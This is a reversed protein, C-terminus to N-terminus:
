GGCTYWFRETLLIPAGKTDWFANGNSDWTAVTGITDMSDQCWVTYYLNMAILHPNKLWVCLHVICMNQVCLDEDVVETRTSSGQPWFVKCETILVNTDTTRTCSDVNFATRHCCCPCLACVLVVWVPLSEVHSKLKCSMSVCFQVLLVMCSKDIVTM